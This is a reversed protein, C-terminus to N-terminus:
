EWLEVPCALLGEVRSRSIFAPEDHWEVIVREIRSDLGASHLAPLLRYEAGEVDLKVVIPVPPLLALWAVFNFCQVQTYPSFYESPAAPAYGSRTGDFKFPLNGDTVWAAVRRTIVLSVYVGGQGSKSLRTSVGEGLEPYPDFGFLVDPHFRDCLKQISEEGAHSKCGLDVVIM